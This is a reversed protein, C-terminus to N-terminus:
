RSRRLRSAAGFPAKEVIERTQQENTIDAELVLARVGFTGIQKSLAELHDGRRATFAVDAGESALALATAEGIGSSAGTVLATTGELPKLLHSTTGITM